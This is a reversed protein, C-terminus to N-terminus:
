ELFVNRLILYPGFLERAMNMFFDVNKETDRARRWHLAALEDTYEHLPYIGFNKRNVDFHTIIPVLGIEELSIDEEARALRVYMIGGLLAEKSSRAHSSLFNGLSYFVPMPRGDPRTIIEMPQLVHPHHGILLDVQQEALFAALSAQERNYNLAYEEGWHLSVVLYDCNPRMAGIEAAMIERDILSVMYPRAAPLPIGNTGFTYALFGVNIDHTSIIVQRGSREQASRHIGLYYVGDYNDLYGISTMIGAEGRDLVHNNAFNIVNFGAAVIASGMEPPTAFQPWGSFGLEENGLITEQNIFAIDAPLIYERIHDFIYHFDYEGNAYSAEFIPPHVLNDGVGVITIYTRLPASPEALEGAVHNEGALDIYQSKGTCSFFGFVIFFSLLFAKITKVFM